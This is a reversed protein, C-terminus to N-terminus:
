TFPDGLQGLLDAAQVLRGKRDEPSGESPQSTPTTRGSGARPSCRRIGGTRPQCSSRSSASPNTTRRMPSRGRLVRAGTSPPHSSVLRLVRHLSAAAPTTRVLYPGGGDPFAPRQWDKASAGLATSGRPLRHCRRGLLLYTGPHALFNEAQSWLINRPRPSPAVGAVDIM